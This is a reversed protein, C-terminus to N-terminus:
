ALGNGGTWPYRKKDRRTTHLSEYECSRLEEEIEKLAGESIYYVRGDNMMVYAVSKVITVAEIPLPFEFITYGDIDNLKYTIDTDIWQSWKSEEKTRIPYLLTNLGILATGIAQLFVRRGPM